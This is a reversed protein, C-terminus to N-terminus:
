IYGYVCTHVHTNYKYLIIAKLRFVKTYILAPSEAGVASPHFVAGNADYPPPVPPLSPPLFTRNVSPKRSPTRSLIKPRRRVTCTYIIHANYTRSFLKWFESTRLTYHVYIYIYVYVCMIAITSKKWGTKLADSRAHPHTSLQPFFDVNVISRSNQSPPRIVRRTCMFAERPTNKEDPSQRANIGFLLTFLRTRYFVAHAHDSFSLEYEGASVSGLWFADAAASSSCLHM